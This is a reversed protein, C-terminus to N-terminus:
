LCDGFYRSCMYFLISKINGAIVRSDTIASMRLKLMQETKIANYEKSGPQYRNLAYFVPTPSETNYTGRKEFPAAKSLLGFLQAVSLIRHNSHFNFRDANAAYYDGINTNARDPIQDFIQVARFSKDFDTDQKAFYWVSDPTLSSLKQEVTRM